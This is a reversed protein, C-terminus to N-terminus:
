PKWTVKGLATNGLEKTYAWAASLTWKGPSVSVEAALQTDKKDHVATISLGDGSTGIKDLADKLPTDSM